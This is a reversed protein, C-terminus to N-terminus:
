FGFVQKKKNNNCISTEKCTPLGEIKGIGGHDEYTGVYNEALNMRTKIHVVTNGNSKHNLKSFRIIVM